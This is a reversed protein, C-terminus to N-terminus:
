NLDITLISVVCAPSDFASSKEKEIAEGTRPEREDNVYRLIRLIITMARFERLVNRKEGM